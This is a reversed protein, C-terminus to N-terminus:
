GENECETKYVEAEEETEFDAVDYVIGSGSIMIVRHVKVEIVRYEDKM